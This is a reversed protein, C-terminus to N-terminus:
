QNRVRVVVAAVDGIEVAADFFEAGSIQSLFVLKDGLKAVKGGIKEGSKLRLELTQGVNRELIDRISDSLQLDIKGQGFLDGCNLCLAALVAVFLKMGSTRGLASAVKWSKTEIATGLNCEANRM